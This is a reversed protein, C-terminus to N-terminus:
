YGVITNLNPSDPVIYEQSDKYSKSEYSYVALQAQVAATGPITRYSPVNYAAVGGHWSCAGRGVACSPSLSGDNCLTCYGTIVREDPTGPKYEIAPTVLTKYVYESPSKQCFGEELSSCSPTSSEIKEAIKTEIPANIEVIRNSIDSDSIYHVGGKLWVAGGLARFPSLNITFIGVLVIFVATIILVLSTNRKKSRIDIENELERNHKKNIM